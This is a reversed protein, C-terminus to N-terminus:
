RLQYVHLKKGDSESTVFFTDKSEDFCVKLPKQPVGFTIVQLVSGDPSLQHINNSDFGLVYINGDRDLAVGRPRKLNKPGYTFYKRGDSDFCVLSDNGPLTIYVRSKIKDLAIYNFSGSPCDFEHFSEVEGDMSITSWYYKNMGCSGTVIIQRKGAATIGFCRHRMIITREACIVDDKVSLIQIKNQDWMTVAVEQNELVCIDWVQGTVTCRTIFQYSPSLLICQGSYDVLIKKGDPLAAIGNYFPIKGGSITIDVVDAKVVQCDKAPKWLSPIPLSESSTESVLKCVDHLPLSILSDMLSTVELQISVMKTKDYKTRIRTYYSSLQLTMRQSMIFKQLNTGYKNYKQLLFHSNRVAHQLSLCENNEDQKRRFEEEYIKNGEMKVKKEIDDLVANFKSRIEGLQKYIANLRSKLDFINTENKESFTKLHHEVNKLEDLIHDPTIEQLLSPLDERLDSVRTCSKHSVFFCTGCCAVSHEKCHYKIDEGDHNSCTFGEAFIMVDQPNCPLEKITVFSHSRTMKQKRHVQLCDGCMAEECVVCLGEAMKSIHESKCADCLRDFKSQTPLLSQIVANVPFQSVWEKLPKDKIYPHAAEKCIPCEIYSLEDDKETKILSQLCSECFNHACPLQRPVSFVGFCIPCILGDEAYENAAAM